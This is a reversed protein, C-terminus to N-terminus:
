AASEREIVAQAMAYWRAALHPTGQAERAQMTACAAIWLADFTTATRKGDRLERRWTALAADAVAVADPDPEAGTGHPPPDIADLTEQESLADLM